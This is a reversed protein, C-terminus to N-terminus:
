EKRLGPLILDSSEGEENQPFPGPIPIIPWACLLELWCLGYEVSDAAGALKSSSKASAGM